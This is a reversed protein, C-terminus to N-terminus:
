VGDSHCLKPSRIRGVLLAAVSEGGLLV